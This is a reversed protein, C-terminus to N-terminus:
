RPLGALLEDTKVAAPCRLSSVYAQNLLPHWERFIYTVGTAEDSWPLLRTEVPPLEGSGPEDLSVLEPARGGSKKWYFTFTGFSVKVSGERYEAGGRAHKGGWTIPGATEPLTSAPPTKGPPVVSFLDSTSVTAAPRLSRPTGTGAPPKETFLMATGGTLVLPFIKEGAATTLAATGRADITWRFELRTADAGVSGPIITMGNESRKAWWSIKEASRKQDIREGGKLDESMPQAALHPSFLVTFGFIIMPFIPNTRM